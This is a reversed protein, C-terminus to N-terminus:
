FRAYCRSQLLINSAQQWGWQGSPEWQCGARTRMLAYNTRYMCRAVRVAFLVRRADSSRNYSLRQWYSTCSAFRAEKAGGEDDGIIRVPQSIISVDEDFQAKDAASMHPLSPPPPAPAYAAQPQPLVPTYVVDPQPAPAPVPAPTPAPPHVIVIQPQPPTSSPTEVRKDKIRGKKTWCAYRDATQMMQLDADENDENAICKNWYGKREMCLSIAMGMMMDKAKTPSYKRQKLEIQLDRFEEKNAELWETPTMVGNRVDDVIAICGKIRSDRGIFGGSGRENDAKASPTMGIAAALAISASAILLRNM